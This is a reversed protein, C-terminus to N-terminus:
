IYIKNWNKLILKILKRFSFIMQILTVPKKLNCKLHIEQTKTFKNETRTMSTKSRQYSGM